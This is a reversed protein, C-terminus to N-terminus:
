PRDEEAIADMATGPLMAAAERGAVHVHYHVHNEVAPPQAKGALEAKREALIAAHRAPRTAEMRDWRARAKRRYVVAAIVLGAIAAAAFAAIYWLFELVIEAVACAVGVLVAVGILGGLDPGSTQWTGSGQWTGRM